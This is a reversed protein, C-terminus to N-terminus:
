PDRIDYTEVVQAPMPSALVLERIDERRLVVNLVDATDLLESELDPAVMEDPTAMSALAALQGLEMRNQLYDLRFRAVSPVFILVEAIVVFLITLGLFRGSLTNFFM